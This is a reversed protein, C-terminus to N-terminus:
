VNRFTPPLLILFGKGWRAVIGIVLTTHQLINALKKSGTIQLRWEIYRKVVTTWGQGQQPRINQRALEERVDNTNSKACEVLHKYKNFLQYLAVHGLLRKHYNSTTTASEEVEAFYGCFERMPQSISPDDTGSINRARQVLM